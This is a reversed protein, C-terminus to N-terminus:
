SWWRGRWSRRGRPMRRFMIKLGSEAFFFKVKAFTDLRQSRREEREKEEEVWAERLDDLKSKVLQEM